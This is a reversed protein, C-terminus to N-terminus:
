INCSMEGESAVAAMGALRYITCNEDNRLRQCRAELHRRFEPYYELWWYASQPLLLYQAGQRRLAELHTIAATSDAPYYGAYVGDENRPFHWGQRGDLRVLEHDGKSVVLVTAGLPVDEAVAARIRDPLARYARYDAHTKACFEGYRRRLAIAELRQAILQAINEESYNMALDREAASGRAHAEDRHDYVRRMYEAAHEISPEAWTEGARYPGVNEEIQTLEHRVPYSNAVTMFDMNGSWGTAIVPKGIAMADSITLGIGESRHLSVYCDCAAMLDRVAGAEWYGAHISVPLNAAAAQLRAFDCPNSEANVCKIVLRVRDAATFASRFAEVIALPNKRQFHSHFDFIFLFVVEDDAVGLRRRGASRSGPKAVTLVPPIRVVPVPAVPALVSAIFSTGVWIEDYYAFRDFWKKPFNTLEWVWIGVNYRSTFFEEGVHAMIAYHLEVDACVLNIDYPHVADFARISPDESRNTQLASVDCLALPLHLHRLARLYARASSGVGSETRLYGVVNVGSGGHDSVTRCCESDARNESNRAM